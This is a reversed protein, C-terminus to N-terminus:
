TSKKVNWLLIWNGRNTLQQLM